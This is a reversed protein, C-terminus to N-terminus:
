YAIVPIGARSLAEMDRYVTRVSVGFMEALEQARVKRRNILIMTMALLRDLKM